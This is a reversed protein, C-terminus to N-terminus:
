ERFPGVVEFQDDTGARKRFVFTGRGTRGQYNNTRASMGVGTAINHGYLLQTECAGLHLEVTQGYRLDGRDTSCFLTHYESHYRMSAGTANVLFLTGVLPGRSGYSYFGVDFHGDNKIPGIVYLGRYQAQRSLSVHRNGMDVTLRDIMCDDRLSQVYVEGPQLVRDVAANCGMSPVRLHATARTETNVYIINHTYIQPTASLLVM